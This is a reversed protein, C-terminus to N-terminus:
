PAHFVKEVAGDHKCRNIERVVPLPPNTYGGEIYQILMCYQKSNLEHFHNMHRLATLSTCAHRTLASM